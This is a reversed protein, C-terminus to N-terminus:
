KGFKMDRWSNILVPSVSITPTQIKGNIELSEQKVRSIVYDALDGLMVNGNSEQLKKLIFYTFIGHKEKDYPYASEDGQTAAFIMLNGTPTVINPKIKIGRASILMEDSRKSGSFCADLFVLISKANLNGLKQVLTEFSYCTESIKIDADTPVLLPTKTKEDPIGHGAYYFIVNLDNKHVESINELYKIAAAINGLTANKYIKINNSPIGVTKVLYDAFIQGDNIAFPVATIENYNENAIIVAFTKSDPLLPNVPIKSDVSPLYLLENLKNLALTNGNAAVTQYCMAAKDKDLECGIGNAYMDGLALMATEDGGNASQNIYYFAMKNNQDVGEGIQYCLGLNYQAIADGLDAAKKYYQVAQELNKECGQGYQLCVGINIIALIYDQEAAKKYWKLAEKYDQSTGLGLRYCEGLCFQADVSGNQASQKYWYLAKNFDQKIGDGEQYLRGIQFQASSKYDNIINPDEVAMKYLRLAERKDIEKGKGFQNCWGLPYLGKTNGQNVSKQLWEVAEYYNQEVGNGDLYLTGIIFQADSDGKQAAPFFLNFINQDELEVAGTFSLINILIFLVVLKYNFFKTM